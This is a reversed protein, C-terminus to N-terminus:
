VTKSMFRFDSVVPAFSHFAMLFGELFDRPSAGRKVTQEYIV